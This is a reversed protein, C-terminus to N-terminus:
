CDRSSNASSLWSLCRCELRFLVSVRVESQSFVGAGSLNALTSASIDARQSFSSWQKLRDEQSLQVCNLIGVLVSDLFGALGCEEQGGEVSCKRGVSIIKKRRVKSTTPLKLLLYERLSVVRPYYQALLAQKVVPTKGNLSGAVRQRKNDGGAGLGPRSRKRKGGM